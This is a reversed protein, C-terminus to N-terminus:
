SEKVTAMFKFFQRGCSNGQEVYDRIQRQAQERTRSLFPAAVQAKIDSSYAMQAPLRFDSLKFNVNREQGNSVPACSLSSSANCLLIVLLQMTTLLANPAMLSKKRGGPAM